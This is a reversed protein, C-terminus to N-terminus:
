KVLKNLQIVLMKPKHLDVRSFPRILESQVFFSTRINLEFHVFSNVDAM